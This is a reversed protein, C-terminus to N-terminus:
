PPGSGFVHERHEGTSELQLTLEPTIDAVDALEIVHDGSGTFAFTAIGSSTSLSLASGELTQFAIIQIDAGHTLVFKVGPKANGTVRALIQGDIRTVTVEGTFGAADINWPSGSLEEGASIRIGMDGRLMEPEPVGHWMTEFATFALMGLALGAAFAWVRAPQLFSVRSRRRIREDIERRVPPAFEGPVRGAVLDMIHQPMDAPPDVEESDALLETAQQMQAFYERAEPHEALYRRLVASEETTNIGDIEGSMLESYREDIM